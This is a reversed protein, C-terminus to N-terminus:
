FVFQYTGVFNKNSSNVFRFKVVKSERVRVIELYFKDKIIGEVLTPTFINSLVKTERQFYNKVDKLKILENLANYDKDVVIVIEPLCNGDEETCPREDGNDQLYGWGDYIPDQKITYDDFGFDDKPGGKSQLAVSNDINNSTEENDCSFLGVTVLLMTSLALTKM